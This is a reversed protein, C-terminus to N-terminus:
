ETVCTYEKEDEKGKHNKVTNFLNGISHLLIKNDIWGRYIITQM